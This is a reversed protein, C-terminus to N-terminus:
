DLGEVVVIDASSYPARRAIAAQYEPSSYYAAAKEYSAFELIAHRSRQSGELQQARGGRVLFRGGYKAAAATSLVVYSRYQAADHVDISAILYGKAM